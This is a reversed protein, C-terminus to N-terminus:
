GTRIRGPRGPRQSPSYKGAGHDPKTLPSIELNKPLGHAQERVGGDHHTVQLDVAGFDGQNAEIHDQSMDPAVFQPKPANAGKLVNVTIGTEAM